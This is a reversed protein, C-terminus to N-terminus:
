KVVKKVGNNTPIVKQISGDDNYYLYDVCISRRFPKYKMEPSDASTNNLFLDSTHYFLYWQGEYEVISHHNTGSNVEDLIVGKYEYPGLINDSMAYVIQPGTVGKEGWTSYSLYYKGKHKHVWVAEFFYKAGEIQRVEGSYSFWIRM